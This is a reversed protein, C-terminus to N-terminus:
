FYRDKSKLYFRAKKKSMENALYAEPLIDSPTDLVKKLTKEFLEEDKILTTYYRAFFVYPLLFKGGSAKFAKKFSVFAKKPGGGMIPPLGAYYAAFFLHPGGYYFGEDLEVCRQMLAIVNPIDILARPESKNLNIFQGWNMGVWFLTPVDKKGFYHVLDTPKKGENTGKRFKSNLKLAKFGYGKGILYIESAFAPNEDEKFLGYSAYAQSAITLLEKNKPSFEVLASILLLNSPLGEEALRASKLRMMKDMLDGLMPTAMNVGMRQINCGTSFLICVFGALILKRKM